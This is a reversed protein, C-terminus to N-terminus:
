SVVDQYHITSIPPRVLLRLFGHQATCQQDTLLYINEMKLIIWNLSLLGLSYTKLISTLSLSQLVAFPSIERYFFTPRYFFYFSRHFVKFFLIACLKSHMHRQCSSIAFSQFFFFLVQSCKVSFLITNSKSNKTVHFISSQFDTLYSLQPWFM